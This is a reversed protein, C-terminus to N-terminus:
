VIGACLEDARVYYGQPQSCVPCQEPATDGEFVFGCNLCVWLTSEAESYLKYGRALESYYSFRAGHSHEIAAINEFVQAISDFGEDRATDAFSPYISHAENQESEFAAQLLQVPDDPLASPYDADIQTKGGCGQMLSFFVEAHKQEQEATFEFLRAVSFLKQQRLKEASMRYRAAAQTEGAWARMLNELTRSDKLEM